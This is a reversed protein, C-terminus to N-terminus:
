RLESTAVRLVSQGSHNPNGDNPERSVDLYKFERANAPLQANVRGDDGVRGIRKADIVSDYLWVEYTGAPLNSLSLRLRNGDITATARADGGGLSTLRIRDPTDGDAEAPAPRDPSTAQQDPANSEEDDGNSAVVVIGV